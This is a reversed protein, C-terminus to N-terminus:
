RSGIESADWLQLDQSMEELAQRLTLQSCHREALKGIGRQKPLLWRLFVGENALGPM